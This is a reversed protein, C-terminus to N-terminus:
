RSTLERLAALERDSPPETRRPEAAV